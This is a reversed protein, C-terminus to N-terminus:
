VEECYIVTQGQLCIWGKLEPSYGWKNRIKTVTFTLGKRITKIVKTNKTTYGDRVNMNKLAKYKKKITEYKSLYKVSVWEGKGIMAWNGKTAIIEVEDNLNLKRIQRHLTSAGSRVKLGTSSSVYM